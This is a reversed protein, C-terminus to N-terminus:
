PKIAFRFITVGSGVLVLAIVLATVIQLFQVNLSEIITYPISRAVSLKAIYGERLSWTNVAWGLLALGVTTFILSSLVWSKKM